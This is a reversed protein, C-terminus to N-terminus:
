VAGSGTHQFDSALSKGRGRGQGWVCRCWSVAGRTCSCCRLRRRLRGCLATWLVFVYRLNTPVGHVHVFQCGRAVVYDCCRLGPQVNEVASCMWYTCWVTGAMSASLRVQVLECGREYLQLLAFAEELARLASDKARRRAEASSTFVSALAEQYSALASPRV